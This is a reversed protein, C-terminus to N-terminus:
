VLPMRYPEKHPGRVPLDRERARHRQFFCVALAGASDVSVDFATGFRGQVFSQHFEDSIAYLVCFVFASWFLFRVSFDGSGSLARCFLAALVGFEGAHATKRLLLDWVGLGTGLDPISSLGFILGCWALVPSWSLIFKKL